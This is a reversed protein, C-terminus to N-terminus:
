DAIQCVCIQAVADLVDRIGSNRASAVTEVGNKTNAQSAMPAAAMTMATAKNSGPSRYRTAAGFEGSLAEASNRRVSSARVSEFTLWDACKFTKVFPFM